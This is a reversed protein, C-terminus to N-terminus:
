SCEKKRMKALVREGRKKDGLAEALLLARSFDGLRHECDIALLRTAIPDGSRALPDLIAAAEQWEGRRRSELARILGARGEARSIAGDLAYLIKALSQCDILNHEGIKSLLASEGSRVFTFWAEPAESGPVDDVRSMGLIGEEISSLKCSELRSKWVRRSPFLLDLHSVDPSLFHPRMGAMLYRNWLIQADFCKGNFSVITADRGIVDSLRELFSLEGPFDTLLLQTVSLSYRAPERRTGHEKTLRGIGAMFAVTGAGRSLGTTELDFFRLTEAFGDITSSSELRERERPFLLPFYPSFSPSAGSFPMTVTRELLFPAIANWGDLARVPAAGAILDIDAPRAPAEAEPVLTRAQTRIRSLRGSLRSASM